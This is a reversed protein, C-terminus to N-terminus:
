GASQQDEFIKKLLDYSTFSISLTIPGKIINLSFGKSLGRWGETRYLDMLVASTTTDSTPHLQMRRRAIDLPYTVFQGSLGAIGNIILSEFLHPSKRDCKACDQANMFRELLVQKICWSTGSYPIIGYLTPRLGQYLGGQKLISSWTSGPILALRVRLVDLPYTLLTAGAGAISGALFKYTM